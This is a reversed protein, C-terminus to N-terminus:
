DSEGISVLSGGEVSHDVLRRCPDFHMTLSILEQCKEGLFEKRLLYGIARPEAEPDGAEQEYQEQLVHAKEVRTTIEEGCKSCRVKIKLAPATGNSDECKAGLVIDRLREILRPM